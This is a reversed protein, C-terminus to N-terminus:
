CAQDCFWLCNSCGIDLKKCGIVEDWCCWCFLKNHKEKMVCFLEEPLLCNKVKSNLLQFIVQFKLWLMVYLLAKVTVDFFAWIIGELPM